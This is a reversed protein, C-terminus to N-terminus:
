FASARHHGFEVRDAVSTRAQPHHFYLHIVRDNDKFPVRGPCREQYMYVDRVRRCFLNILVDFLLFLLLRVGHITRTRTQTLFANFNICITATTMKLQARISSRIDLGIIIFNWDQSMKM